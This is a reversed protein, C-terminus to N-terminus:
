VIEVSVRIKLNIIVDQGNVNVHVPTIDPDKKYYPRVFAPDTKIDEGHPTSSIVRTPTVSTELAAQPEDQTIDAGDPGALDKKGQQTIAYVGHSVRKIDSHKLMLRLKEDFDARPALPKHLKVYEFIHQAKASERVNLYARIIRWLTPKGDAGEGKTDPNPPKPPPASQKPDEPM